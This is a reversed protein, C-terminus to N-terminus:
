KRGKEGLQWLIVWSMFWVLETKTNGYYESLIRCITVWDLNHRVNIVFYDGSFFSLLATFLSGLPTVLVIKGVGKKKAWVMLNRITQENTHELVHMCFIVDIKEKIESYYKVDTLEPEIDYGIYKTGKPLCKKLIQTDCGFDLITENGKLQALEVAKKYYADFYKKTLPNKRKEIYQSALPKFRMKEGLGRKLM